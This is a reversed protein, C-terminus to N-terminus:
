HSQPEQGPKPDSLPFTQASGGAPPAAAPPATSVPAVAAPPASASSGTSRAVADLFRRAIDSNTRVSGNIIDYANVVGKDYFRADANNDISLASGDLAVGAFLGRSRSYSYVESSLTPDTGASASRGVPGAAVSADAGLTLQGSAIRDISRKTTFVLIVDTSTVGWQFGFSGGTLNVFIPDSFHGSPDRAVLVGNGRRGGFFFAIKTVDPVVAIGYARELLRSPVVQDPSGLADNLVQSATLLRAEERGQAHVAVSSFLLALAAILGTIGTRNRM